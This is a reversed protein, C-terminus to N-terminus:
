QLRTFIFQLDDATKSEQNFIIAYFQKGKDNHGIMYMQNPLHLWFNPRLINASVKQFIGDLLNPFIKFLVICSHKFVESQHLLGRIGTKPSFDKIQPAKSHSPTEEFILNYGDYGPLLWFKYIELLIDKNKPMTKDSLRQYNLNELV